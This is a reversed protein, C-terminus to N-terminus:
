AEYLHVRVEVVDTAEVVDDACVVVVGNWVVEVLLV